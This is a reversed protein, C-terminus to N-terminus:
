MATTNKIGHTEALWSTTSMKKGNSQGAMSAVFSEGFVGGSGSGSNGDGAGPTGPYTGGFGYRNENSTTSDSRSHTHPSFTGHNCPGPHVHEKWLELPRRLLSTTERAGNGTKVDLNGLLSTSANADEDEGQPISLEASADLRGTRVDAREDRTSPVVGDEVHAQVQPGVEPTISAVQDDRLAEPSGVVHTERLQSPTTPAHQHINQSRISAARSSSQSASKAGPSPPPTNPM